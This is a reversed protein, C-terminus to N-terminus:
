RRTEDGGLINAGREDDTDLRAHNVTPCIRTPNAGLGVPPFALPGRPCEIHLYTPITGACEIQGIVCKM